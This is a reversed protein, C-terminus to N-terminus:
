AAAAKPKATLNIVLRDELRTRKAALDTRDNFGAAIKTWLYYRVGDSNVGDELFVRITFQEPHEVRRIGLAKADERELLYARLGDLEDQGVDTVIDFYRVEPEIHVHAM